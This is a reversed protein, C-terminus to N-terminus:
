SAAHNLIILRRKTFQRRELIGKFRQMDKLKLAINLSRPFSIKLGFYSLISAQHCFYADGLRMRMDYLAGNSDMLFVM